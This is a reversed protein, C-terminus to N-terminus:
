KLTVEVRRNKARGSSSNNSEVPRDPGLGNVDMLNLGISGNRQLYNKVFDARDRSLNVNYSRNGVNDTHGDIDLKSGDVNDLYYILDAFDTRQQSSLSINDSDTDFYVTIPKGLLRNKIGDIRDNGLALDGFAFQVGKELTDKRWCTNTSESGLTNLQGVSVGLGRLYNKINDARALGLNPFISRNNEASEYLGTITLGRDTNGKLYDAVKDLADGLNSSFPTLRNFGNRVFEIQDVSSTRFKSADNINWIGVCDDEVVAAAVPAAAVAAGAGCLFKNFCWAGLLFWLILLLLILLTTRSMTFATNLPKCNQLNDLRVFKQRLRCGNLLM